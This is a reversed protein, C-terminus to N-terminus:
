RSSVVQGRLTVELGKDNQQKGKSQYNKMLTFLDSFNTM